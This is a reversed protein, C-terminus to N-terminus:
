DLMWIWTNSKVDFLNEKPKFKQENKITIYTRTSGYLMLPQMSSDKTAKISQM